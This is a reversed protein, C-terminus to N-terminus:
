SLRQVRSHKVKRKRGFLERTKNLGTQQALRPVSALGKSGKLLTPEADRQRRVLGQASRYLNLVLLCEKKISM